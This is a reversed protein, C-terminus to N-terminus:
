TASSAGARFRRSPPSHSKKNEVAQQREPGGDVRCRRTPLKCPSCLLRGHYCFGLQSKEGSFARLTPAALSHAIRWPSDTRALRDPQTNASESWFCSIANPGIRRFDYNAAPPSSRTAKRAAFRQSGA